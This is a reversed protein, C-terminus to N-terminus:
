HISGAHQTTVLYVGQSFESVYAWESKDPEAVTRAPEHKVHFARAVLACAAAGLLLFGLGRM